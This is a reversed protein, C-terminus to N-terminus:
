FKKYYGTDGFVICQINKDITFVVDYGDRKPVEKNRYKIIEGSRSERESEIEGDKGCLYAGIFKEIGQINVNEHNIFGKIHSAKSDFPYLRKQDGIWLSRKKLSNISSYLSEINIQCVPEQRIKQLKERISRHKKYFKEIVKKADINLMEAM